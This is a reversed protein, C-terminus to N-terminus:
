LTYSLFPDAAEQLEDALVAAVLLFTDFFVSLLFLVELQVFQLILRVRSVFLDELLHFISHLHCFLNEFTSFYVFASHLFHLDAEVHDFADLFLGLVFKFLLGVVRLLVAGKKLSEDILSKDFQDLFFNLDTTQTGILLEYRLDDGLALGLEVFGTEHLGFDGDVSGVVESM